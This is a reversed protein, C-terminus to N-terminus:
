LWQTGGRHGGVSARGATPNSRFPESKASYKKSLGHVIVGVALSIAVLVLVTTALRRMWHLRNARRTQRARENQLACSYCGM